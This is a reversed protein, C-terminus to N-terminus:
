DSALRRIPPYRNWLFIFFSAAALDALITLPLVVEAAVGITMVPVLLGAVLAITRRPQYRWNRRSLYLPYLAEVLLVVVFGISAPLHAAQDLGESLFVAFLFSVGVAFLAKVSAEKGGAGLVLAARSVRYGALVLAGMALISTLLIPLGMWYGTARNVILMLLVVDASLVLLTAATKRGGLLLRDSTEPLALGLLLIPVSFSFVAHFRVIGAAWVWIVGLWHGYHGLSGVPGASPNFLTSLAIGEELIGYAAGLLLVTAWGKNWRIRAERVLLAGPLYLGTNALIQLLFQPPNLVLANIPSSSSLYEPIGPTLLMLLVVPHSKLFRKVRGAM